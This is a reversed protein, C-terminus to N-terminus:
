TSAPPTCRHWSTVKQLTKMEGTQEYFVLKEWTYADGKQACPGVWAGSLNRFSEDDGGDDGGDGGGTGIIAILGFLLICVLGVHRLRKLFGITMLNGFLLYQGKRPSLRTAHKKYM